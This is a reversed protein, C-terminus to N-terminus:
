LLLGTTMLRQCSLRGCFTNAGGAFLHRSDYKRFSEIISAIEQRDGGLENGIEFMVFSAHNGFEDLLRYGEKILYETTNDYVETKQEVDGEMVKPKNGVGGWHPLEPLMYIGLRDCAEFAAAPPCWTHCRIHNIGYSKIIKLIRLWEEVNM